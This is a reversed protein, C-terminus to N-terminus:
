YQSRVTLIAEDLVVECLRAAVDKAGYGDEDEDEINLRALELGVDDGVRIDNTGKVLTTRGGLDETKDVLHVQYLL